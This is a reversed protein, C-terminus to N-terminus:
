SYPYAHQNSITIYIIDVKHKKAAHIGVYSEDTQIYLPPSPYSICDNKQQRCFVKFISAL